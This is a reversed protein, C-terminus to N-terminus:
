CKEKIGDILRAYSVPNWRKEYELYENLANIVKENGYIDIMKFLDSKTNEPPTYNEHITEHEEPARNEHEKHYERKIQYLVHLRDCTNFDINGDYHNTELRKIENCVEEYDQKGIM